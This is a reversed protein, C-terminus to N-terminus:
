EDRNARSSTGHFYREQEYQIVDEIRYMVRGGIKIYKPGVNDSRWKQLTQAKVQWRGSLAKTSLLLIIHKKNKSM